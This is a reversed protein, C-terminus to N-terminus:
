NSTSQHKYAPRLVTSVKLRNSFRNVPKVAFMPDSRAFHSGTQGSEHKIFGMPNLFFFGDM